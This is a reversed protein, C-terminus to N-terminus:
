GERREEERDRGDEGRRMGKEGEGGRRSGGEGRSEKDKNRRNGRWIRGECKVSSEPFIQM